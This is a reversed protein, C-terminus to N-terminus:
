LGGAACGREHGGCSHNDRPGHCSGDEIEGISPLQHYVGGSGDDSEQHNEQDLIRLVAIAGGNLHLQIFEDPHTVCLIRQYAYLVQRVIFDILQALFAFRSRLGSSAASWDLL